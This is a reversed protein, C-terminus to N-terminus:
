EGYATLLDLLTRVIRERSPRFLLNRHRLSFNWGM